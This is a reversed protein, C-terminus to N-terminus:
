RKEFDNKYDNLTSGNPHSFRDVEDPLTGDDEWYCLRCISYEGVTNLTFHKCCSCRYLKENEGVIEIDHDVLHKEM